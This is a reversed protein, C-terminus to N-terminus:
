DKLRISGLIGGLEKRKEEFADESMKATIFGTEDAVDDAAVIEVDGFVNRVEDESKFTRVFFRNELARHDALKLVEESWSMDITTGPRQAIDVIDAVVASATPLKGAGSGYFMSDGLMNGKVFVANFVDNVQYLPQSVPVLYPAVMAVYSEGSAYSSAILKIARGMAKAYKIDAATINSIGETHIEQYDVTKGSILSTLIAIKRCADFGEVDATPDKEAYGKAQAEKLVEEYECGEETMRTLMYNTTGNLIGSIELIVEATLADHIPRIIPIGGGVSAEYLFSVQNERAIKFLEAGKDAVLAKNSSCVSKGAELMAKVFTFAPEVGGMTEVVISIEPDVAIEKYDHVIKAQIPDDEFDRLDLVAKVEISDGIRKALVANNEEIIEVVGSGITGYGMVAIKIM